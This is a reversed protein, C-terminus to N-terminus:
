RRSHSRRSYAELWNDLGSEWLWRINQKVTHLHTRRANARTVINGCFMCKVSRRLEGKLVHLKSTRFFPAWFRIKGCKSSLEESGEKVNVPIRCQPCSVLVVPDLVRLNKNFRKIKQELGPLKRLEQVSSDLDRMKVGAGGWRVKKAESPHRKFWLRESVRELGTGAQWETEILDDMTERFSRACIDKTSLLEQVDKQSLFQKM